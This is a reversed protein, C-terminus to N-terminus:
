FIPPSWDDSRRVLPNPFDRLVPFEPPYGTQRWQARPFKKRYRLGNWQFPKAIRQQGSGNKVIGEAIWPSDHFGRIDVFKSM